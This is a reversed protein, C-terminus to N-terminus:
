TGSLKAEASAGHAGDGGRANSGSGTRSNSTPLREAARETANAFLGHTPACPSAPATDFPDVPLDSQHLEDESAKKEGANLAKLRQAVDAAIFRVRGHTLIRAPLNDKNRLLTDIQSQRVKLYRALQAEPLAHEELPEIPQWANRPSMLMQEIQARLMLNRRPGFVYLPPYDNNNARLKELLAEPALGVMRAIESIRLLGKGLAAEDIKDHPSLGLMTEYVRLMPYKSNLPKVGLRTLLPGVENRSLTSWTALDKLTAPHFKEFTPM